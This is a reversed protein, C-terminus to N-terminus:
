KVYGEALLAWDFSDLRTLQQSRQDFAQWLEAYTKTVVPHRLTPAIEALPQLVFANCLIEERPLSLRDENVVQDDYLLLDIDLTRSSFRPGDRRRLHGDEIERLTAVVQVPSMLTTFGAVLNYFAAGEFGVSRSDYVSSLALEGFVKRLTQVGSRVHHELEIHSGISIYGEM